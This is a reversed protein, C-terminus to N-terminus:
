AVIIAKRCFDSQRCYDSQRCFGGQRCRNETGLRRAFHDAKPSAGLGLNVRRTRNLDILFIRIINVILTQFHETLYLM